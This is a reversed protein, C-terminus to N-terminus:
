TCCAHFEWCSLSSIKPFNDQLVHSIAFVKAWECVWGCAKMKKGGEWASRRMMTALPLFPPPLDQHVLTNKGWENRSLLSLFFDGWVFANSEGPLCALTDHERLTMWKHLGGIKTMKAEGQGASHIDNISAWKKWESEQPWVNHLFRWEIVIILCGWILVPAPSFPFLDVLGLALGENTKHASQRSDPLYPLKGTGLIQWELNERLM